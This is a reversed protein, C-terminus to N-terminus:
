CWSGWKRVGHKCEKEQGQPGRENGGFHGVDTADNGVNL